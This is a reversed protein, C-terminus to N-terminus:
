FSKELNMEKIIKKLTYKQKWKPYIIYIDYNNLYQNTLQQIRQQAQMAQPYQQMAKPNQMMPGLQQQITQLEQLEKVTKSISEEENFCPIIISVVNNNSEQVM